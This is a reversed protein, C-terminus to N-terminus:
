KIGIWCNVSFRGDEFKKPSTTPLVRHSIYSPFIVGLDNKPEIKISNYDDLVPKGKLIPSDIFELQGGKYKKPEKNMYYVFTILRNSHYMGGDAHFGYTQGNDGYRSVQTEHNNTSPFINFPHPASILPESFVGNNFLTDINNLLTSSKRNFSFIPDYYAVTNTRFGPKENDGNGTISEGFRDKLRFVEKLIEKNVKKGFCNELTFYPISPIDNHYRLKM